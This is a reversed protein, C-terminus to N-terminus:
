FRDMTLQDGEISSVLVFSATVAGASYARLNGIFHSVHELDSMGECLDAYHVNCPPTRTHTSVCARRPLQAHSQGRLQPPWTRAGRQARGAPVTARLCTCQVRIQKIHIIPDNIPFDVFRKALPLAKSVKVYKVYGDSVM